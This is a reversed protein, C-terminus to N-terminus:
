PALNMRRLLDAFRPDSRLGDFRPDVKLGFVLWPSRAEYAKNLWEFAQDKQGLGIYIHAVDLTRLPNNRGEDLLRQTEIKDGMLAYAHGKTGLPTAFDLGGKEMESIAENYMGKQVLARGIGWHPNGYTPDM